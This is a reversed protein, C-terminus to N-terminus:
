ASSKDDFYWSIDQEQCDPAREIHASFGVVPREPETDPEEDLPMTKAIRAASRLLKVVDHKDLDLGEVRITVDGVSIAVEM